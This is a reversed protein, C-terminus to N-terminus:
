SVRTSEFKANWSSNWKKVVLLSSSPSPSPVGLLRWVRADEFVKGLRLQLARVHFWVRGLRVLGDYDFRPLVSALDDARDLETVIARLASM